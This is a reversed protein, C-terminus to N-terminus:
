YQFVYGEWDEAWYAKAPPRKVGLSKYFADIVERGKNLFGKEVLYSFVKRFIKHPANTNCYAFVLLNGKLFSEFYEGNWRVAVLNHSGHPNRSQVIICNGFETIVRGMTNDFDIRKM